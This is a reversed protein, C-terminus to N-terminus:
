FINNHRFVTLRTLRVDVRRRRKKITVPVEPKTEKAEEVQQAKDAKRAAANIAKKAAIAALIVNAGQEVSPAQKPESFDPTQM